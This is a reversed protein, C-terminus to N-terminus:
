DKVEWAWNVIVWDDLCDEFSYKGDVEEKGFKECMKDYWFPWYQERIEDESLTVVYGGGGTKNELESDLDYEHYSYYRTM